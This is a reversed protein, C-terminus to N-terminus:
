LEGSQGTHVPSDPSGAPWRSEGAGVTPAYDAAAVHRGRWRRWHDPPRVPSDPAGPPARSGITPEARYPLLDGSHLTRHAVPSDPAGSRLLCVSAKWNSSCRSRPGKPSYFLGRPAEVLCMLM